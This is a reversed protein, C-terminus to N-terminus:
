AASGGAATTEILWNALLDENNRHVRMHHHCIARLRDGGKPVTFHSSAYGCLLRFSETAALDNWLGELEELAQYSGEEALIDVMEGYVHLQGNSGAALRRVLDGVQSEFLAADPAGARMFRRLTTRADLVTFRGEAKLAGADYGAVTLEQEILELNQPRAVVLCNGDQALDQSLFAAVGTGLSDIVDFLQVIHESAVNGRVVRQRHTLVVV